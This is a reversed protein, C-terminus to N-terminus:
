RRRLPTRDAAEVVGLAFEAYRQLGTFPFDEYYADAPQHYRDWRRRLAQTSDASLGEYPAPGPIIFVAPIGARAFPFHDSNPTARSVTTSWGRAAAVDRALDGLPNDSGGELRWSWSRAPPAGADLNIVARFRDLPVTPHAVYHDSGLLGREEAAFFLFLTSHRPGAPSARLADAIALLMAVGGANDSFGNYVSDGSADPLSIGLHDYHATLAIVSDRRAADHGPLLCAVNHAALPRRDFAASLAIEPAAGAARVLATVVAPGAIVSPIAPYFSSATGPDRLVTLAPGRSAAYLDFMAPDAVLQVIAVAGREALAAALDARVVGETVAVRGNLPPLAAPQRRIDDATGLPVAPGRFGRLASPVGATILFDRGVAFVADGVTLRTEAEVPVLEELPVDQRYGGDTGAPRLGLLRCQAEIYLAALEAGPTGTGRGALLDDALFSTHARLAMTDIRAPAPAPAPVARPACASAAGFLFWSLLRARRTWATM